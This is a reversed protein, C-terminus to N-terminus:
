VREEMPDYGTAKLANQAQTILDRFYQPDPHQICVPGIDLVMMVEDSVPGSQHRYSHGKITDHDSSTIRCNMCLTGDYRKKM